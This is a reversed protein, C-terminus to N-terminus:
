FGKLLHKVIEKKISESASCYECYSVPEKHFPCSLLRTMEEVLLKTLLIKEEGEAKVIEKILRRIKPDPELGSKSM